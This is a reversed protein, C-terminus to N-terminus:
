LVTFRHSHPAKGQYFRVFLKFTPSKLFFLFLSYYKYLTKTHSIICRTTAALVYTIKKKKFAQNLSFLVYAHLGPVSELVTMDATLIYM